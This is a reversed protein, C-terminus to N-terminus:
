EKRTSQQRCGQKKGSYRSHMRFVDVATLTSHSVGLMFEVFSDLFVSAVAPLGVVLTPFQVFGALAAPALLMAPPILVLVAPAGLVVPVFVVVIVVLRAKLM